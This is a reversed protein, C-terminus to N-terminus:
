PLTIDGVSTIFANAMTGNVTGDGVSTFDGTGATIMGITQGLIEAKKIKVQSWYYKSQADILDDKKKETLTQEEIFLEQAGKLSIDATSNAGAITDAIVMSSKKQEELAKQAGLLLIQQAKMEIDKENAALAVFDKVKMDLVQADKIPQEQVSNIALQMATTITSNLVTAYDTGVLRGAEFQENITTSALTILAEYVSNIETTNVAM